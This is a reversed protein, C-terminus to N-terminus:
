LQAEQPYRAIWARYKAISVEKPLGQAQIIGFIREFARWSQQEMAPMSHESADPPAGAVMSLVAIEDQPRLRRQYFDALALQAATKNVSTEVYLKWDSEAATLDLQQEDELARL